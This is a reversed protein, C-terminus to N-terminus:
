LFPTCCMVYQKFVHTHVGEIWLAATKTAQLRGPECALKAPFNYFRNPLTQYCLKSGFMQYYSYEHTSKAPSFTGLIVNNFM